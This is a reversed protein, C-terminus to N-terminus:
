QGSIHARQGATSSEKSTPMGSIHQDKEETGGPAVLQKGSIHVTAEESNAEVSISKEIEQQKNDKNTTKAKQDSVADRTPIGTEQGVAKTVDKDTKDNGKGIMILLLVVIILIVIM